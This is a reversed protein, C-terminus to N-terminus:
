KFILIKGSPFYKIEKAQAECWEICGSYGLDFDTLTHQYWNKGEPTKGVHCLVGHKNIVFNELQGYQDIAKFFLSYKTTKTIEKIINNM